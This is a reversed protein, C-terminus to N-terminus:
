VVEGDSWRSECQRVAVGDAQVAEGAGLVGQVVCVGQVTPEVVCFGQRDGGGGVCQRVAQQM